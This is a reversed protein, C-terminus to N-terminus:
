SFTLFFVYALAGLFTAGLGFIIIRSVLEILFRTKM